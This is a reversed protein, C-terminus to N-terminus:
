LHVCIVCLLFRLRKNSKGILQMDALDADWINDKFSSYVNRKKFKKIIPKHIEDALQQNPMSKVGSVPKKMLFNIFWLLLVEKIDM